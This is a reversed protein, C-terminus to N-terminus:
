IQMKEVKKNWWDPSVLPFPIGHEMHVETHNMGHAKETLASFQPVSKVYLTLFPELETGITDTAGVVTLHPCGWVM